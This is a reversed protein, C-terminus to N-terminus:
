ENLNKNLRRAFRDLKGRVTPYADATLEYYRNVEDEKLFTAGITDHFSCVSRNEKRVEFRAKSFGLTTFALDHNLITASFACGAPADPSMLWSGYVFSNAPVDYNYIRITGCRVGAHEAVFYAEEGREFRKLYKQIWREQEVACGSTASIHKNLSGNTRLAVIFEADAIGVPRLRTGCHNASRAHEEIAKAHTPQPIIV